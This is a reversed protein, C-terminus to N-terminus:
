LEVILLGVHQLDSGKSVPCRRGTPRFKLGEQLAEQSCENEWRSGHESHQPHPYSAKVEHCGPPFLDGHMHGLQDALPIGYAHGEM